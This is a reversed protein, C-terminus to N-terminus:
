LQVNACRAKSIFMPCEFEHKCLLYKVWQIMEEARFQNLILVKSPITRTHMYMCMHALIYTHAPICTCTHRHRHLGSPFRLQLEETSYVKIQNFCLKENTQSNSTIHVPQSTLGLPRGTEAMWSCTNYTLALM